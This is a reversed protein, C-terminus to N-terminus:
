PSCVTIYKNNLSCFVSSYGTHTSHTHKSLVLCYQNIVQVFSSHGHLTECGKYSLLIFLFVISVDVCAKKRNVKSDYNYYFYTFNLSGSESKTSVM